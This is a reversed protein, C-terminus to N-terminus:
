FERSLSLPLRGSGRRTHRPGLRRRNRRGLNPRHIGALPSQVLHPEKDLGSVWIMVPASDALRRFRQESERLADETAKRATTDMCIGTMGVVNGIADLVVRGKGHVWHISGDPWVIRYEIDHDAKEELSRTITGTVFEHDDPHVDSLYDEFKGGFQGASLGHISELGPSWRVRGSDRRWEWAGMHGADLAMRLGEASEHLEREMRRPESVDRFILEAGLIAGSEARIPAASDDIFIEAGNRSILVINNSLSVLQGEVCFKPSRIRARRGRNSTYSAFYKKSPSAWRRM